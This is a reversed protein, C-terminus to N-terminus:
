QKDRRRNRNIKKWAVYPEVGLKEQESTTYWDIYDVKTEVDQVFWM